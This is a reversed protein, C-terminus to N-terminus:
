NTTGDGNIDGYDLAHRGVWSPDTTGYAEEVVEIGHRDLMIQGLEALTKQM